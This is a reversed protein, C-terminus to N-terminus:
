ETRRLGVDICEVAEQGLALVEGGLEVRLHVHTYAEKVM